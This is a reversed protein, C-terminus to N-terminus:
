LDSEENGFDSASRIRAFRTQNILCDTQQQLMHMHRMRRSTCKRRCSLWDIRWRRGSFVYRHFTTLCAPILHNRHIVNPAPHHQPFPELRYCTLTFTITTSQSVSVLSALRPICGRACATDEGWRFNARRAVRALSTHVSM